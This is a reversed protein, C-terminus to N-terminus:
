SINDPILSIPFPNQLTDPALKYIKVTKDSRRVVMLVPAAKFLFTRVRGWLTPRVALSAYLLGGKGKLDSVRIKQNLSINKCKVPVFKAKEANTRKQLLIKRDDKQSVKYNQRFASWTAPTDLIM